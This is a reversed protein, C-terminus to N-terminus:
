LEDVTAAVLRAADARDRPRDAARTTALLDDRGICPVDRGDLTFIMRRPWADAVTVGDISTLVDIRLPPYGLQGVVDPGAFDAVTLGLSGFGLASLATVIRRANDGDTWVWADLDGTYRPPGHAALAFGGVLLFRAGIEVFSAVFENFDPDLDM